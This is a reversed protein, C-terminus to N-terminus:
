FKEWWLSSSRGGFPVFASRSQQWPAESLQGLSCSPAEQAASIGRRKRKVEKFGEKPAEVWELGHQQLQLLLFTGSLVWERGHPLEECGSSEEMGWPHQALELQPATPASGAALM